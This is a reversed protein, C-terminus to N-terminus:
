FAADEKERKHPLLAHGDYIRKGYDSFGSFAYAFRKHFHSLLARFHHIALLRAAKCPGEACGLGRRLFVARSM